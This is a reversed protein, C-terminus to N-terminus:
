QHFLTLVRQLWSFAEPFKEIIYPISVGAVTGGTVLRFILKPLKDGHERGLKGFAKPLRESLGKGYENAAHGITRSAKGFVGRVAFAAEAIRKLINNVSEVVDYALESSKAEVVEERFDSGAARSARLPEVLETLAHPIAPDFLEKLEDTRLAKVIGDALPAAAAVQEVTFREHEANRKFERWLQSQRMTRDFQLAVANYRAALFEPWQEHVTKAYAALVAETHGIRFLEYQRPLKPPIQNALNRLHSVFRKDINAEGAVDDALKTIEARLARLATGFRRSKLDTNAPQNQLTLIGKNWIPQIAAPRQSPVDPTNSKPQYSLEEVGIMYENDIGTAAFIFPDAAFFPDGRRIGLASTLLFRLRHAGGSSTDLASLREVWPLKRLVDRAGQRMFDPPPNKREFDTKWENSLLKDFKSLAIAINKPPVETM